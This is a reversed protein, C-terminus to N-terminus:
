AAKVLEKPFVATKMIQDHLAQRKAGLTLFCGVFVVLGALGGISALATMGTFVSLLRLLSGANKIAYRGLLTPVAAQTGDENAIRIGLILKGLTYGTFGEVLFYVSGILVAALIFGLAAGIVGGIAAGAMPSTDSGGSSGAIGGAAVGLMGGITSGLFFAAVCVLIVDLLYAGLRKGFGIRHEM